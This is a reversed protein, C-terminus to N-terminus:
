AHNRAMFKCSSVMQRYLRYYREAMGEASFAREAKERAARAMRDREQSNDKLFLCKEAFDGTSRGDILFGEKGDEIIEVIGGVAPAIVPLGHALAELITMPIGEHVSTNIYIDLGRYFSEMDDQHGKLIFGADLGHRKVMAELAPREPGDGALEFRVDEAGTAAVTRAIEVM